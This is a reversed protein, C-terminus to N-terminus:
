SVAVFDYKMPTFVGKERDTLWNLVGLAAGAMILVAMVNRLPFAAEKTEIIEAKSFDERGKMTKFEVHFTPKGTLYASFTGDLQLLGEPDMEVFKESSKVYNLIMERTFFKFFSSFVTENVPDAIVSGTKKVQIINNKYKEKAVRETIDEGFIYGCEANGKQVKQILEEESACLRFSYVDNDALLDKITNVAMEDDDRAYLLVVIDETERFGEMRPAFFATVPIIVLIILFVINKLQRKTLLLCWLGIKKM